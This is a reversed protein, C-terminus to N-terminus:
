RRNLEDVVLGGVAGVAGGVAAGVAPSGGTVAGVAAGTGAGIAAGSLVRQERTSMGACGALSGLITVMAVFKTVKSMDMEM